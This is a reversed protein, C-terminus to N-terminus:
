SFVLEENLEFLAGERLRFDLKHAENHSAISDSRYGFFKLSNRVPRYGFIRLVYAGEETETAKIVLKKRLEGGDGGGRLRSRSVCKATPLPPAALM